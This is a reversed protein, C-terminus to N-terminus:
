RATLVTYYRVILCFLLNRIESSCKKVSHVSIVFLVKKKSPIFAQYTGSKLVLDFELNKKDVSCVSLVSIWDFGNM